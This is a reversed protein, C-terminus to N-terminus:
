AAASPMTAWRFAAISCVFALVPPLWDRPPLRREVSGTFWSAAITVILFAVFFLLMGRTGFGPAPGDGPKSAVAQEREQWLWGPKARAVLLDRYYTGYGLLVIGNILLEQVGTFYHRPNLHGEVFINIFAIVITIPFEAVAAVAVFFNLLVSVGLFLEMCKVFPYVEVRDLAVLFQGVPSHPDHYVAPVWGFFVYAGGSYILHIGFLMRFFTILQWDFKKTM